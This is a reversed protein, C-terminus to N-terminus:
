VSFRTEVHLDTARDLLEARSTELRSDFNPDIYTADEDFDTRAYFQTSSMSPLAPGTLFAIMDQQSLREGRAHLARMADAAASPLETVNVPCCTTVGITSGYTAGVACISTKNPVLACVSRVDLLRAAIAGKAQLEDKEDFVFRLSGRLITAGHVYLAEVLDSTITAVSQEEATRPVGGTFSRPAGHCSPLQLLPLLGLLSAAKINRM